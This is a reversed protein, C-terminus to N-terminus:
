SWPRGPLRACEAARAPSLYSSSSVARPLRRVSSSVKRRPGVGDHRLAHVAFVAQPHTEADAAVGVPQQHVAGRKLGPPRRVQSIQSIVAAASDSAPAAAMARSILRGSLCSDYAALRTLSPSKAALWRSSSTTVLSIRSTFMPKLGHGLLQGFQFLVARHHQCANRVVQARGPAGAAPSRFSRSRRCRGSCMTASM